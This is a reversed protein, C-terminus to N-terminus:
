RVVKMAEYYHLRCQAKAKTDEHERNVAFFYLSGVFKLRWWFDLGYFKAGISWWIGRDAM